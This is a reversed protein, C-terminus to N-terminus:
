PEVRGAMVPPTVSNPPTIEVIRPDDTLRLADGPQLVLFREDDWPGTLLDRLLTPDGTQRDFAWGLWDACRQTYAVDDTTSALGWDIYTARDYAHLWSQETELLFEANDDGFRERYDARLRECREQGPPLHHRIWGASYWYTGPHRAVYETYRERSGLLLTICDHARPLVLQCRSTRLNATARSCLGYGLVIVDATTHAEIREVAAQLEHALRAPDQHLGQPLSERHVIGPITRLFEACEDELVRCLLVALRTPSPM